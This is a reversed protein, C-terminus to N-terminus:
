GLREREGKGKMETERQRIKGNTRIKKNRNQGKKFEREKGDKNTM